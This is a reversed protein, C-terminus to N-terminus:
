GADGRAYLDERTWGRETTVPLSNRSGQERVAQRTTAEDFAALRERIIAAVTEPRVAIVRIADGEPTWDLDVGPRIGYADAIAKPISVQLNSKM